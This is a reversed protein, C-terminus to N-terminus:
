DTAEYERVEFSVEITKRSRRVPILKAIRPDAFDKLLPPRTARFYFAPRETVSGSTAVALEDTRTVTEIVAPAHTVGLELLACARHYGNQLLFRNEASIVSLFNSSFGVVIGVVASISGFSEYGALQDPRLIAAEHFRIDTSESTFLYRRSGARTVRVPAEDRDLPLCFHFLAEADLRPGLRAKLSDVFPRTVHKQSVVLRDLRVMAIRVPLTDFAQRFRADALVAEALDNLAPDLDRCEAKDALGAETRELDYYLDNARRWEDCLARPDGAAGEVAYKKVFDLYDQLPPQGLLWLEQM